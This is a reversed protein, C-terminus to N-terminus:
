SSASRRDPRPSSESTMEPLKGLGDLTGERHSVVRVGLAHVNEFVGDADVAHHLLQSVLQVDDAIGEPPQVLLQADLRGDTGSREGGHVTSPGQKQQGKQM